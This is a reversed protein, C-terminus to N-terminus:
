LHLATRLYFQELKPAQPAADYTTPVARSRRERDTVGLGMATMSVLMDGWVEPGLALDASRAFPSIAADPPLSDSYLAPLGSVQAELLAMGFGEYLSPFAFVDFASYLDPVDLREGLLKVRGTLILENSGALAYARASEPGAGVLVLFAKPILRTVHRFSDLLFRQNKQEHFHGVHGIVLSDEPCGIAKRMRNRSAASFRYKEYEILNPAIQYGRIFMQDGAPRTCALRYDSFRDIVSRALWRKVRAVGKPAPLVSHSHVIRQVPAGALLPLVLASAWSSHLHVHTYASNHVARAISRAWALDGNGRGPVEVLKGNFRPDTAFRFEETNSVVFDFTVEHAVFHRLYNM